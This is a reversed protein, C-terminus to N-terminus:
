KKNYKWQITHELTSDDVTYNKNELSHHKSKKQCNLHLASRDLKERLPQSTAKILNCEDTILEAGVGTRQRKQGDTDSSPLPQSCFPKGKYEKKASDCFRGCHSGLSTCGGPSGPHPTTPPVQLGCPVSRTNPHRADELGEQLGPSNHSARAQNRAARQRDCTHGNGGWAGVGLAHGEPIWNTKDATARYFLTFKQQTQTKYTTAMPM